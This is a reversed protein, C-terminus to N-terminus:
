TGAAPRGVSRARGSHNDLLEHEARVWAPVGVLGATPSGTSYSV